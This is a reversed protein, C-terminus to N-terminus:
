CQGNWTERNMELEISQKLLLTQHIEIELLIHFIFNMHSILLLITLHSFKLQIWKFAWQILFTKNKLVPLCILSLKIRHKSSENPAEVTGELNGGLTGINVGCPVDLQKYARYIAIAAYNCSSVYYCIFTEGPHLLLPPPVGKTPGVLGHSRKRFVSVTASTTLDHAATWIFYQSIPDFFSIYRYIWFIEKYKLSTVENLYLFQTWSCM